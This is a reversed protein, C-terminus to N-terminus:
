RNEGADEGSACRREVGQVVLRRVLNSLTRGEEAAWRTLVDRLDPTFEITLKERKTM